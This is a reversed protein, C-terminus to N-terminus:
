DIDFLIMIESSLDSKGLSTLFSKFSAELKGSRLPLLLSGLTLSWPFILSLDHFNFYFCGLSLLSVAFLVSPMGRDLELTVLAKGKQSKGMRVNACGHRLHLSFSDERKRQSM